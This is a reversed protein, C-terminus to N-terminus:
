QRRAAAEGGAVQTRPASPQKARVQPKQGAKSASASAVAPRRPGSASKSSKPKAKGSWERQLGIMGNEAVQESVDQDHRNSRPVLLASGRQILVGRPIRNIERLRTEDIGVLKAADATRLTSPAVWATWSALPGKHRELALLYREANSYPLLIQQSGAALIVPKNHQPNLESFEAEDLGALRAALAVDIDREIPVSLFYPHNELAPLVVGYTEPRAVINKVAMLMPVYSRTENPMRLSEYDTPLGAKQNRLIARQVNGEGWNYAALALHWDGFMGHLRTLYDLAARTSSLVARRDDRFVNQKLSFDKGTAPMFQWLGSAKASSIAQPNFASEIFPLLALETPLNRRQVEEVIHFLYRSGRTMTRRVHDPRSAYLREGNNTLRQDRLEPIAFGSRIRQWLDRMSEPEGFRIAQDPNLTDLGLHGSGSASPAATGPTQATQPPSGTAQPKDPAAKVAAATSSGPKPAVTTPEARTASSTVAPATATSAASATSAAPADVVLVTSTSQGAAPTNPAVGLGTELSACGVLLLGLGIVSLAALRRLAMPPAKQTM